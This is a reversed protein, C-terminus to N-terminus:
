IDIGHPEMRGALPNRRAFLPQDFHIRSRTKRVVPIKGACELLPEAERRFFVAAGLARNRPFGAYVVADMGQFPDIRPFFAKLQQSFDTNAPRARFFACFCLRFAPLVSFFLFIAFEDLASLWNPLSLVRNIHYLLLLILITVAASGSVTKGPRQPPAFPK